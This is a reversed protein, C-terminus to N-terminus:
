SASAGVWPIRSMREASKGFSRRKLIEAALLCCAWGEQLDARELRGPGGDSPVHLIVGENQDVHYLPGPEYSQGDETLMWAARAYGALQADVATMSFWPTAKTKLDAILLRGTSLELLIDDFKGAANIETNRVV